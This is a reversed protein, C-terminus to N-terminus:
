CILVDGDFSGEPSEGRYAKTHDIENQYPYIRISTAALPSKELGALMSGQLHFCIHTGLSM